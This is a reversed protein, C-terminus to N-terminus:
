ATVVMYKRWAKEYQEALLDLENLLYHRASITKARGALVEAGMEKMESRANMNYNFKRLDMLSVQGNTAEKLRLHTFKRFEYDVKSLDRFELWVRTPVITFYCHKQGVIRNVVIASVGKDKNVVHLNECSCSALKTCIPKGHVYAMEEGRLGTFLAFRMLTALEGRAFTSLIKTITSDLYDQDAIWVQDHRRMQRNIEYREIIERILMRMEPKQYKYDYYEAFRRMADCIWSRNRGSQARVIEAKTFFFEAFRQYYKVLDDGYRGYKYKSRLYRRFDEIDINKYFIPTVEGTLPDTINKEKLRMLLKEIQDTGSSTSLEGNLYGRVLDGLTEFGNIKFRQHLAAIESERLKVGLTRAREKDIQRGIQTDRM